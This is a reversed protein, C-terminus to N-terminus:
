VWFPLKRRMVGAVAFLMVWAAGCWGIALWWQTPDIPNGLLPDRFIELYHTMPNFDAAARRPGQTEEYVWLIPTTFFFLRSIAAILHGVDRLRAALLGFTYQVPVSLLVILLFAPIALFAEPGPRWGFFPCIVLALGFHIVFPFLTRAIGQYVYTSYPLAASKVWGATRVFVACGDVIAALIVNFIAFGFAVHVVFTSGELKSFGGFFLAIAFVFLLYSFGLWALGLASRRYRNQIEDWAFVRWVRHARLGDALDRLVGVADFQDGGRILRTTEAGSHKNETM